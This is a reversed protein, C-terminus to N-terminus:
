PGAGTTALSNPRNRRHREISLRSTMRSQCVLSQDLIRRAADVYEVGAHTLSLKRTTRTLLRAGLLAELDAVKRTLTPIAVGMERAGASLSGKAIAVETM